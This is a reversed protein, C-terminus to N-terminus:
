NKKLFKIIENFTDDTNQITPSHKANKIISVNLDKIDAKIIEVSPKAPIVDDEEGFILEVPQNINKM